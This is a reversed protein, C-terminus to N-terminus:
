KESEPDEPIKDILEDLTEENSKEQESDDILFRTHDFAEKLEQLSANHLLDEDRQSDFIPDRSYVLFRIFQGIEDRIGYSHVRIPVTALLEELSRPIYGLYVTQIRPNPFNDPLPTSLSPFLTKMHKGENEFISERKKSDEVVFDLVTFKGNERQRQVRVWNDKVRRIIAYILAAQSGIHQNYFSRLKYEPELNRIIPIDNYEEYDDRNKSNYGQEYSFREDQQHLRTPILEKFGMGWLLQAVDLARVYSQPIMSVGM